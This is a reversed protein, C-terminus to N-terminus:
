KKTASSNIFNVKDKSTISQQQHSGDYTTPLSPDSTNAWPWFGKRLARVVSKVFPQNPHDKLNKEFADVKIPTTIKFLDPHQAITKRAVKNQLENKPPSPLPLAALTSYASVV